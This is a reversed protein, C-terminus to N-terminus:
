RDLERYNRENSSNISASPTGPDNNAVPSSSTLEAATPASQASSSGNVANVEFLYTGSTSLASTTTYSTSTIGTAYSSFTSGGDTSEFISYTNSLSSPDTWSITATDDSNWVVSPDTPSEPLITVTLSADADYTGM